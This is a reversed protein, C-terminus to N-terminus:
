DISTDIKSNRHKNTKNGKVEEIDAREVIYKQKCNEGIYLRVVNNIKQQRCIEKNFITTASELFRYVHFHFILNDNAVGKSTVKEM